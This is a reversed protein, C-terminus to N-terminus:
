GSTAVAESKGIVRGFADLAVVRVYAPKGLATITTDLGNWAAEGLPWLADPRAGGVVVWRAVETAGNWVAHVTTHGSVISASAVPSTDPTGVWRFRYGRYTDYGTPVSADFLLNNNADFESVRGTAGWGVFTDDNDLAQSNGQSGASLQDPHEIARTLTATHDRADHRIWVVRSPGINSENDFLRITNWGDAFPNHQWAFTAGPGQVFDSKTGGLRYLVDGSHRDLKYVGWANRASIILNGDVDINVANIHFYDYPTSDTPVPVHSEDLGIHDLSHWEFIVKGTAVDIEQVIGDFVVGNASGGVASLDKPVEAYVTILATNQPTLHFEHTDAKYGNGAEVTAIVHYSRDLIYDVGEGHGAGTHSQGQWWTIVPQGRYTQVRFDAAQDGGTVPQFWVPRGEDDIIEPGQSGTVGAATIKPAVFVLGHAVRPSKKLITIVPPAAPSPDAHAVGGFSAAFSAVAALLRHHWTVSRTSYM